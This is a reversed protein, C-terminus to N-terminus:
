YYEPDNPLISFPLQPKNSISEKISQIRVRSERISNLDCYYGERDDEDSFTETM